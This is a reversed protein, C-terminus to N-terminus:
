RSRRTTSACWRTTASAAACWRRGALRRRSRGRAGRAAEVRRHPGRRAPEDGDLRRRRRLPEVHRQRLHRPVPARGVPRLDVDGRRRPRLRRARPRRPRRGVADGDGEGGRDRVLGGRRPAAETRLASSPITLVVSERTAIDYTSIAPITLALLSANASVSALGVHLRPQVIANWGNPDSQRATMGQTILEDLSGEEWTDGTLRPVLADRQRARRGGDGGAADVSSCRSRAARRCCCSRRSRRTCARRSSPRATSPSACASPSPSPSAPLPPLHIEVTRADTAVARYPTPCHGHRAAGRRRARDRQDRQHLQDRQHREAPLLHWEHRELRQHREDAAGARM